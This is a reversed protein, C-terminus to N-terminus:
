DDLPRRVCLADIYIRDVRWGRHREEVIFGHAHEVEDVEQTEFIALSEPTEFQPRVWIATGPNMNALIQRIRSM